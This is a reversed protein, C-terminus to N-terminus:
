VGYLLLVEGNDYVTITDCQTDDETWEINELECFICDFTIEKM